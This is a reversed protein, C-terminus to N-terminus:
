YYIRVGEPELAAIIIESLNDRDLDGLAVDIIVGSDLQFERLITGDSINIISLKDRTIAPSTVLAVPGSSSMATRVCTGWEGPIQRPTENQVIHYLRGKLDVAVLATREREGSQVVAIDAAPFSLTASENARDTLPYTWFLGGANFAPSDVLYNGVLVSKNRHSVARAPHPLFGLLVWEDGDLRWVEGRAGGPPSVCLEMVGNDDLDILVISGIDERHRVQGPPIQVSLTSVLRAETGSLDYIWLDSGALVALEDGVGPIINGTAVKVVRRGPPALYRNFPSKSGNLYAPDLRAQGSIRLGTRPDILINATIEGAPNSLSANITSGSYDPTLILRWTREHTEGYITHVRTKSLLSGTQDLVREVERSGAGPSAGAILAIAPPLHVIRAFYLESIGTLDTAGRPECFSYDERTWAVQVQGGIEEPKADHFVRYIEFVQGPVVGHLAGADLFLGDDRVSMVRASIDPLEGLIFDATWSALTSATRTIDWVVSAQKSDSVKGSATESVPMLGILLIFITLIVKQRTM